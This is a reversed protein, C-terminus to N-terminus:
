SLRNIEDCLIVDHSHVCQLYTLNYCHHSRSLPKRILGIVGHTDDTQFGFEGKLLYRTKATTRTILKHRERDHCGDCINVSFKTKLFSLAFPRCCEECEVESSSGAVVFAETISLNWM